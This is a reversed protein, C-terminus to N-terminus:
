PSIPPTTPPSPSPNKRGDKADASPSHSGSHARRTKSPAFSEKSVAASLGDCNPHPSTFHLPQTDSNRFAVEAVLKDLGAAVRLGAVTGSKSVAAECVVGVMATLTAARLPPPSFTSKKVM